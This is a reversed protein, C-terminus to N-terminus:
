GADWGHWPQQRPSLLLISIHTKTALPWTCRQFLSHSLLLFFRCPFGRNRVRLCPLLYVRSEDSEDSSATAFRKYRVLYGTRCKPRSRCGSRFSHSVLMHPQTPRRITASHNFFAYVVVIQTAYKRTKLAARVCAFGGLYAPPLNRNIYTRRM